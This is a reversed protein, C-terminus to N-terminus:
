LLNSSINLNILISWSNLNLIILEKIFNKIIRKFKDYEVMKLEIMM